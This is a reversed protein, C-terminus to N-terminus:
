LEAVAARYEQVDRGESIPNVVKWRVVGEADILFTARRAVGREQDLVGYAEAVAGHPWFDSLLSFEFGQQDAWVRHTYVSDVSVALTAVSGSNLDKAEGLEELESGCVGTFASPYFVLLVASHGRFDALGLRRGHQDELAFEPAQDGVNVTM